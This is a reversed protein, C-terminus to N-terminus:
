QIPGPGKYAGNHVLDLQILTLHSKFLSHLEGVVVDASM